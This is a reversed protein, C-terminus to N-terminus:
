KYFMRSFKGGDLHITTNTLYDSGEFILSQITKAVESSKLLRKKPHTKSAKEVNERDLRRVTMGCDEIMSPAIAVCSSELNNIRIERIFREMAAKGIAYTGDYSGKVASESSIYVYRFKVQSRNLKELLRAPLVCNIYLSRWTKAEDQDLLRQPYLIGWSYLVIHELNEALQFCREESGFEQFQDQRYRKIELERNQEEILGAIANNTGFLHLCRRSPRAHTDM